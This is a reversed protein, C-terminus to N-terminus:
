GVVLVVNLHQLRFVVTGTNPALAKVPNPHPWLGTHSTGRYSSSVEPFHVRRSFATLPCLPSAARQPGLLPTEPSVSGALAEM